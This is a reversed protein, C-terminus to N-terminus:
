NLSRNLVPAGGQTPAEMVELPEAASRAAGRGVACCAGLVKALTLPGGGKVPERTFSVCCVAAIIQAGVLAWVVSWGAAARLAGFAPPLLLVLPAQFAHLLGFAPPLAAIGVFDVVIPAQLSVISGGFFGNVFYYLAQYPLAGLLPPFALLATAVGNIGVSAQLLMLKSVGRKALADAAVGMLLRGVTNAAGQASVLLAAADASTGSERFSNNLHNILVFWAGGYLAVYAILCTLPQHRCLSLLTHPQAQPEVLPPARPPPAEAAGAPAAGWEQLGAADAAAEEERRAAELAALEGAGAADGPLAIPITALACLPLLVAALSALFRLGQRWGGVDIQAQVLPGLVVGGVGSGAVVLGSATGRIRSFWRQVETLVVSSPLACGLGLLFFGARVAALSEASAGLLCGGIFLACGLLMVARAGIRSVMMGAPLSGFLFMSSMLSAAWTVGARSAGQVIGADSLLASLLIGTSYQVGVCLFYTCFGSFVCLWALGGDPPAARQAPGLLRLLWM